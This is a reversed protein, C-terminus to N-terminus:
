SGGGRLELLLDLAPEFGPAVELARLVQTRAEDRDGADRLALALRYHADAADVPKLALIARRERVAGQRDGAEAMLEALRGHVDMDYPYIEVARALARREGAPDGLERRLGAEALHVDYLNEGLEGMAQLADAAEEKDGRANYMRALYLLPGDPGGYEPFLELATRLHEEAEDWQEDAALARGLALQASFDGPRQRVSRRLDDLSPAAPNAPGVQGFMGSLPSGTEATARLAGRFRERVYDDFTDDLEDPSMGLVSRTLEATSEERGYGQLFARVAQFGHTEEMWDFVLSAEYYALPVQGPFTPRVFAENLHSVPPMRGSQYAQLFAVSAGFGWYAHAVRQERMALGESFWRPVNHDTMALHFAHALEHWLTSQWNFDGPERASPSDMVLTSGFSVGLAGLGVLGLTRVSFDAHRPFIELRIPTPPEAGYRARLAAYAEEALTTAYTALIDAEDKRMVLHFHPTTVTTYDQFTDLLDLTNKYWPNYPDGQFAKELDRRGQEIEGTRLRNMGLLGWGEWSLSDRRVAERALSVADAYKRHDVALEGVTVFLDAYAPNLALARDRVRAYAAEDGRLHETAALVSLAQLSNPNTELAAEAANRAEDYEEAKLHLRALFTLAGPHRPNVDLAKEVTELARGDGDFDLARAEGLLADPNEPDTELVQRYADHAETSNYKALFLDGIALPVRPDGPDAAAAEDLAKLADQFLVSSRRGLHAVALGVALLDTASLQGGGNYLDIFGDYVRAAEDGHGRLDQIEGLRLQALSRAPARSQVARRFSAEADDWRGVDLLLEGRQVELAPDPAPGTDGGLLALADQYRGSRALERARAGPSADDQAAAPATAALTAALVWLTTRAAM